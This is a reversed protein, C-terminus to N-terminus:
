IGREREIALWDTQTDGRDVSGPKGIAGTAYLMQEVTSTKGADVHALIGINLTKM